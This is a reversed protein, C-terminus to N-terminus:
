CGCAKDRMRRRARISPDRRGSGGRKPSRHRGPSSAPPRPAAAPAPRLGACPQPVPTIGHDPHQDDVIRRHHALHDGFLQRAVVVNLDDPRRHVGIDGTVLDNFQLGVDDREVQLHGAHVAQRKQGLEHLMVRQGHHDQTRQGWLVAFQGHLRQVEARHLHQALRAGGIRGLVNGLGQRVGHARGRRGLDLPPRGEGRRVRFGPRHLLQQHLGGVLHDGDAGGRAAGLGDLRHEPLHRGRRRPDHDHLVHRLM